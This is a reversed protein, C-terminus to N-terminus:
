IEPMQQKEVFDPPEWSHFNKKQVKQRFEIEYNELHFM